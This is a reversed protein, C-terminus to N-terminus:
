GKLFNRRCLPCDNRKLLWPLICDFHYAHKCRKNSSLCVTEGDRYNNWCIACTSSAEIVAHKRPCISAKTRSKTKKKKKEEGIHMDVTRTTLNCVKSEKNRSEEDQTSASEVDGLVVSKTTVHYHSIVEKSNTSSEMDLVQVFRTWWWIYSSVKLVIRKNVYRERKKEETCNSCFMRRAPPLSHIYGVFIGILFGTVIISM